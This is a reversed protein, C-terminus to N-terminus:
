QGADANPGPPPPESSAGFVSKWLQRDLAVQSVQDPQQLNLGGAMRQNARTNANRENLPWTPSIVSYPEANDASGTFEDYMPTALEDFLGLPKMGLILEMSRIVSLFDYRTHVVASRRAYPSIVFAPIRHADVHDAGDQSDDEIVFIASSSWISSHSITDVM